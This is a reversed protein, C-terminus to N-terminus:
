QSVYQGFFILYNQKGGAYEFHRGFKHASNHKALQDVTYKEYGGGIKFQFQYLLISQLPSQSQLEGLWNFVTLNIGDGTYTNFDNSELINRRSTHADILVPHTNKNQQTPENVVSFKKRKASTEYSDSHYLNGVSECFYKRNIIASACRGHTKWPNPIMSKFKIANVFTNREYQRLM